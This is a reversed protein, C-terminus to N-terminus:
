GGWVASILLLHDDDSLQADLDRSVMRGNISLAFSPALEGESQILREEVLRPFRRGLEMVVDSLEAGEEFELQSEEVGAWHRAVGFFEVMVRM